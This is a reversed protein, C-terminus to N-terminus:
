RDPQQDGGGDLWGETSSSPAPRRTVVPESTDGSTQDSEQLVEGKMDETYKVLREVVGRIRRNTLLKQALKDARALMAEMAHVKDDGSRNQYAHPM